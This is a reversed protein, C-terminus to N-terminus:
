NAGLAIADLEEIAANLADLFHRAAAKPLMKPRAELLGLVVIRSAELRERWPLEAIPLLEECSESAVRMVTDVIPELMERRVEYLPKVVYSRIGM